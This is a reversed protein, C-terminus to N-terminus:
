VQNALAQLGSGICQHRRQPCQEAHHQSWLRRPGCALCLAAPPGAFCLCVCCDEHIPRAASAALGVCCPLACVWSGAQLHTLLNTQHAAPQKHSMLRNCEEPMCPVPTQHISGVRACGLCFITHGTAYADCVARKACSQSVATLHTQTGVTQGREESACLKGLRVRHQFPFAISRVSSQCHPGGGFAQGREHLPVARAAM